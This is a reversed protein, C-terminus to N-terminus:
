KCKCSVSTTVISGKLVIDSDENWDEKKNKKEELALKVM